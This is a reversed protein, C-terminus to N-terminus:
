KSSFLIWRLIRDLRVVVMTVVRVIEYKLEKIRYDLERFAEMMTPQRGSIQWAPKSQSDRSDPENMM